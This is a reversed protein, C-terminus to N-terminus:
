TDRPITLHVTGWKESPTVGTQNEGAQEEGANTVGTQNVVFWEKGPNHAEGDRLNTVDAREPNAGERRPQKEDHSQNM